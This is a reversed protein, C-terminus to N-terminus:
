SFLNALWDEDGALEGVTFADTVSGLINMMDEEDEALDIASELTSLDIDVGQDFARKSAKHWRGSKTPDPGGYQAM